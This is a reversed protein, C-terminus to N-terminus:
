NGEIIGSKTSPMRRRSSIINKMSAWVHEIPNLDAGKPPWDLVTIDPHSTFWQQVIKSTHIPSRDQQFIVQEAGFRDRVSPLMIEELIFKYQRGTFAGDIEWMM